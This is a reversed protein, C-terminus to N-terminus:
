SGEKQYESHRIIRKGPLPSHTESSVHQSRCDALDLNTEEWGEQLGEGAAYRYLAKHTDGNIIRCSKCDDGRELAFSNASMHAMASMNTSMVFQEDGDEIEIVLYLPPGDDAILNGDKDTRPKTSPTQSRMM